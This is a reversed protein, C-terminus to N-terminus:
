VDYFVECLYLGKPPATKGARKRNRADLIVPIDEPLLKGMGVEVLTGTIIRVMNYLFGNGAVDYIILPLGNLCSEVISLESEYLTRVADKIKSGSAMFSTFDHTGAFNLAAKKMLDLNLPYKVHWARNRLIASPQLSNYMIYRYSKGRASFRANFSAEAEVSSKIIIDDPLCSNLAAAFSEPPIGSSTIFSITQALAHVGADTRGAGTLVVDETTLRKVANAIVNQVTVANTQSQWGHYETGDYEATLRINRAPM